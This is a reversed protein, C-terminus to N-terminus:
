SSSIRESLWDTFSKFRSCRQAVKDPDIAALLKSAHQIKAYEGKTTDRTANALKALVQAKPEDELNPRVPLRNAHFGNGYYGELARPDAVIWTEMCQVMLHLQEASVSDLIWNHRTLLHNKRDIANQEMQDPVEPAMPDESDVLLVCLTGDESAAIENTFARYASERGGSPILKWGLKKQRAANKQASLLQDFGNRLEAKQQATQGGGEVYIAIKNV